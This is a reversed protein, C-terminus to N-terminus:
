AKRRMVAGLLLSLIMGTSVTGMVGAFAQKGSTAMARYAALQTEIDAPSLGQAALRQRGLEAMEQFYHPFLVSTSLYSSAFILVSAVASLVMGHLVQRLFPDEQRRQALSWAMVAVQLGIAGPIFVMSLSPHRYWGMFGNFLSWAAVLVGLILGSRLPLFM